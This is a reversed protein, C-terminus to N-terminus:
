KFKKDEVDIDNTKNNFSCPIIGIIHQEFFTKFDPLM